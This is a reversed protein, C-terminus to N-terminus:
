FNKTIFLNTLLRCNYTPSKKDDTVALRSDTVLKSLTKHLWKCCTM